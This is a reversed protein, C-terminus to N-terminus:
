YDDDADDDDDDTVADDDVEVVVDNTPAWPWKEMVKVLAPKTADVTDGAELTLFRFTAGQGKRNKYERGDTGVTWARVKGADLDDTIKDEIGDLWVDGDITVAGAKAHPAGDDDKWTVIGRPYATLKCPFAALGCRNCDGTPAEGDPSTVGKMHITGTVGDDSRCVVPGRQGKVPKRYLRKGTYDVPMITVQDSVTPANDGDDVTIGKDTATVMVVSRLEAPVAAIQRARRAQQGFKGM